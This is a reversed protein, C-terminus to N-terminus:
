HATPESAAQSHAELREIALKVASTLGEDKIKPQESKLRDAFCALVGSWALPEKEKPKTVSPDVPHGCASAVSVVYALYTGPKLRDKPHEPFPPPDVGFVSAYAPAVTYLKMHKPLDQAARVRSLALLIGIAHADSAYAPGPFSVLADLGSGARLVGAVSTETASLRDADRERAATKDKDSKLKEIDGRLKAAARRAALSERAAAVLDASLKEIAMTHADDLHDATALEHVKAVLPDTVSADLMKLSEVKMPDDEGTVTHIVVGCRHATAARRESAGSEGEAESWLGGLLCSATSVVLQYADDRPPPTAVSASASTAARPTEAHEGGGCAALLL